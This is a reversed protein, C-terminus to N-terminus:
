PRLQIADGTHDHSRQRKLKNRNRINIWHKAEQLGGLTKMNESTPSGKVLNKFRDEIINILEENTIGDVFVNDTRRCFHIDIVDMGSATQLTYIQGPEKIIM